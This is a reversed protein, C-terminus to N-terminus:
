IFLASLYKMAMVILFKQKFKNLFYLLFVSDPGGSLAVLIKNNKNVLKNESIFKIVKQDIRKEINM